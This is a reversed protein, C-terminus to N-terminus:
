VSVFSKRQELWLLPRQKKPFIDVNWIKIFCMGWVPSLKPNVPNKEDVPM